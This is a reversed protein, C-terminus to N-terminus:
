KPFEGRWLNVNPDSEDYYVEISDGVDPYPPNMLSYRSFGSYKVGDIKFVYYITNGRNVVQNVYAKTVSHNTKLKERYEKIKSRAPYETVFGALLGLAAALPISWAYHLWKKKNMM